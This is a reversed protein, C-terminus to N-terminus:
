FLEQQNLNNKFNNIDIIFLKYMEGNEKYFDILTETTPIDYGHAIDNRLKVSPKFKEMFEKSLFNNDVCIELCKRFYLKSVDVSLTRLVISVYDEVLSQFSNFLSRFSLDMSRKIIENNDYKNSIIEKYFLDLESVCKEAKNITTDLRTLNIKKM